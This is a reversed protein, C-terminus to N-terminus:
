APPGPQTPSRARLRRRGRARRAPPRAGTRSASSRRLPDSGADHARSREEESREAPVLRDVLDTLQPTLADDAPISALLLRRLEEDSTGTLEALDIAEEMMAEADDISEVNEFATVLGQQALDAGIEAVIGTANVRVTAETDDSSDDRGFSPGFAVWLLTTIIAIFIGLCGVSFRMARGFVSNRVETRKFGARMFFGAAVVGLILAFSQTVVTVFGIVVGDILLAIARKRPLALPMGMLDDSVEFASPTIISRPDQQITAM